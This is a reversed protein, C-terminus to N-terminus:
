LLQVTRSLSHSLARAHTRSRSPLPAVKPKTITDVVKKLEAQDNSIVFPLFVLFGIVGLLVASLIIKEYHKKVFEM